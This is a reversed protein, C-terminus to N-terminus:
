DIGKDRKLKVKGHLTNETDEMFNPWWATCPMYWRMYWTGKRSPFDMLNNRSIFMWENMWWVLYLIVKCINLHNQCVYCRKSQLQRKGTEMSLDIEIRKGEDSRYKTINRQRTNSPPMCYMYKCHWGLRIEMSYRQHIKTKYPVLPYAINTCKYKYM